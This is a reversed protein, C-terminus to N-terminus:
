VAFPVCHFLLEHTNRGHYHHHSASMIVVIFTRDLKIFDWCWRPIRNILGRITSRHGLDFPMVVMAMLNILSVYGIVTFIPGDLHIGLTCHKLFLLFFMLM